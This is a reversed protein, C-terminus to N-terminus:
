LMTFTQCGWELLMEIAAFQMMHKGWLVFSRQMYYLLKKCLTNRTKGGEKICDKKAPTACKLSLEFSLWANSCLPQQRQSDSGRCFYFSFQHHCVIFLNTCLKKQQLKIVPLFNQSSTTPWFYKKKRKSCNTHTYANNSIGRGEELTKNRGPRRNPPRSPRYCSGTLRYRKVARRFIRNGETSRQYSFFPGRCESVQM